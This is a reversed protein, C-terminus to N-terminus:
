PAAAVGSSVLPLGKQQWAIIGGDLRKVREIGLHHLLRAGAISQQGGHCALLIERDRPLERLRKQLDDLPINVAEKLHYSEFEEADRLDLLFPRGGQDLM